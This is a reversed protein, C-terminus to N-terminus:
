GLPRSCRWRQPQGEVLEARGRLKLHDLYCLTESMWWEMVQPIVPDDYLDPLIEFPTRPEDGLAEETRRLRESVLARNADIHADVSTFTRGHGSLCLRAGLAGVRDLSSLFDGVPDATDGRDFYVSVKGLVHDGSILIRRQPEWLSIHSPAHGPTEIVELPGLDSDVTMGEALARHPKVLGSVGFGTGRRAERSREVVDAPVGASIAQEARRDFAAEPDTAPVTMHGIAPHMWLEAGTLEIISAAQGYHDSHAHTCVVLRVDDVELGVMRLALELDTMSRSSHIGTDVLVIGDGSRIAWANGHPVGPWPLPLRLRWVGPLVREGRGPEPKRKPDSM